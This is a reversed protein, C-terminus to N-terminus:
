AWDVNLGTGKGLLLLLVFLGNDLLVGTADEDAFADAVLEEEELLRLVMNRTEILFPGLFADFVSLELCIIPTGQTLLHLAHGCGLLTQM